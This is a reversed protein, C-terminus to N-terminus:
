KLAVVHKRKLAQQHRDHPVYEIHVRLAASPIGAARRCQVSGRFSSLKTLTQTQIQKKLYFSFM